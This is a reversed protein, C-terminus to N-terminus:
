MIFTFLHEGDVIYHSFGTSTQMASFNVAGTLICRGQLRNYFFSQCYEHIVCHTHCLSVSPCRLFDEVIGTKPEMDVAEPVFRFKSTRFGYCLSLSYWVLSICLTVAIHRFVTKNFYMESLNSTEVLNSNFSPM